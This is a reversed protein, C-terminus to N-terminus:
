EAKVSRRSGALTRECEDLYRRLQETDDTQIMNFGREIHSEWHLEAEGLESRGGCLSDWMTNVWLRCGHQRITRVVDTAILPSDIHKFCIEVAQPKVYRCIDKMQDAHQENSSDLIHMYLPKESVSHIFRHVEDPEATSKFLTQQVTGTRELVRYVEDRWVWCKDLNIMVKNRTLIMVEELTAITYNTLLQAAGGQHQRLRLARLEALTMEAITGSGDTMRDVTEDHMLVFAGDRTRQVDIEILDARAVISYQIAALSNEPAHRWDGRHAAILVRGNSDHFSSLIEDCGTRSAGYDTTLFDDRM